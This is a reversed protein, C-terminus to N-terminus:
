IDIVDGRGVGDAAYLKPVKRCHRRYTPARDEGSSNAQDTAQRWTEPFNSSWFLSVPM